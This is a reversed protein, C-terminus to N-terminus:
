HIGVWSLRAIGAALGVEEGEALRCLRVRQGNRWLGNKSATDIAQIQGHLEIVLAHIRSFCSDSLVPVGQTTAATTAVWCSAARWRRPESASVPRARPRTCAYSV